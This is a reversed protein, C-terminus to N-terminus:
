RGGGAAATQVRFLSAPTPSTVDVVEGWDASVSIVAPTVRGDPYFLIPGDVGDLRQLGIRLHDNVTVTQGFEGALPQSLGQADIKVIRYSLGSNNVELLSISATNIADTRAAQTVALLQDTADRLKAGKSWGRMSPAALAVLIAMIALVLILEILTFGCHQRATRRM